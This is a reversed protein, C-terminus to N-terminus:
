FHALGFDPFDLLLEVRLHGLELSLVLLLGVLERALQLLLVLGVDALARFELLFDLLVLVLVAEALRLGVLLDVLQAGLERVRFLEPGLSLLANFVEFGHM